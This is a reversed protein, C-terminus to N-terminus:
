EGSGFKKGAKRRIVEGSYRIGKGKYPEPPRVRRINAAFQGVQQKDCGKIVISTAQPIELELGQPIKMLVPHCFGIALVLERGQLKANYGVGTIELKKQFGKTVGEIMNHILTRTLGHLAKHKKVDSPRKVLIQEGNEAIEIAMEPHFEQEVKGVPGEVKLTTGRLFTRVGAPVVVPQKGIRSM